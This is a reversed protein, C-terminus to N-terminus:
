GFPTMQPHIVSSLGGMWKIFIILVIRVSESVHFDWDYVKGFHKNLEYGVITSKLRSFKYPCYIM